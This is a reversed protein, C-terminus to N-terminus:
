ADGLPRFSRVAGHLAGLEDPSLAACRALLDRARPDCAAMEAREEETMGLVSLVLLQDIETGDFMDGPSEPAIQPFDYLTIPSSLVCRGEAGGDRADGATGGPTEGVSEAAPEGLPEGALVPWTGENACAGAAERLDGPPDILSVFAGRESHLVTHTSVFAHRVARDRADWAGPDPPPCATTNTIGAALRLVGAAARVARLEVTGTLPQWIRLLTGARRGAEDDLPERDSGGPVAIPVRRPGALLDGVRVPPLALDREAAEQWSVHRRGAVTLTDVPEPGGPGERLVQREVVHLFRVRVGVDADPGGRLLCETRIGSREGLAGAWAPPYVGGFTWRRTNKLASRRYPWLMYGEYLVADAIQRIPDM